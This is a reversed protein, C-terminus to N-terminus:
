WRRLRAPQASIPHSRRDERGRAPVSSRPARRNRRLSVNTDGPGRDRISHPLFGASSCLSCIPTTMQFSGDVCDSTVPTRVAELSSGELGPLDSKSKAFVRTSVVDHKSELYKQLIPLTKDSEYEASGSILCVRLPNKKQGGQSATLALGTFAAFLFFTLTKM